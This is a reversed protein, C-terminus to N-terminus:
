QPKSTNETSRFTFTITLWAAVILIKRKGIFIFLLLLKTIIGHTVSDNISSVEGQTWRNTVKPYLVGVTLLDSASRNATFAFIRTFPGLVSHISDCRPPPRVTVWAFCVFSPNAVLINTFIHIYPPSHSFTKISIPPESYPIFINRKRIFTQVQLLALIIPQCPYSNCKLFCRRDTDISHRVSNNISPVEGPTWRNTVKPYLVGFTLLDSASRNTTSAIIRTCPGLVSHVSDSRPPPRITVWAFCVVSPNAVLINTFIHIYPIGKCRTKSSIPPESYPIFINRSSIFTQFQLLALIIPQCPPSDCRSFHWM